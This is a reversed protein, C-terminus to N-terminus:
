EITVLYNVGWGRDNANIDSHGFLVVFYEPTDVLQIPSKFVKKVLYRKGNVTVFIKQEPVWETDIQSYQIGNKKLEDAFKTKEFDANEALRREKEAKAEAKKEKERVKAEARDEQAWKWKQYLYASYPILLKRTGQEIGIGAVLVFPVIAAIDDYEIQSEGLEFVTGDAFFSVLVAAVVTSLTLAMRPHTKIFESTQKVVLAFFISSALGASESSFRM